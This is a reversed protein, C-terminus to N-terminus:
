GRGNLKEGGIEVIRRSAGSVITATLGVVKPWFTAKYRAGRLVSSHFKKVFFKLFYSNPGFRIMKYALAGQLIEDFSLM